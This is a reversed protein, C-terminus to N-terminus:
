VRLKLTSLHHMHFEGSTASMEHHDHFSISLDRSYIFLCRFYNEIAFIKRILLIRSKKRAMFDLSM